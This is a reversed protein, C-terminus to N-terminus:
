ITRLRVIEAQQRRGRMQALIRNFSANLSRIRRQSGGEVIEGIPMYGLRQYTRRAPINKDAVSLVVDECHELLTRTVASTTTTAYGRGRFNPHTYVNGVVAIGYTPSIAHTGAVSVLRDNVVIGCYLGEDIHRASYTTIGWETGYLQNIAGVHKGDLRVSIEETDHFRQSTVHMRRMVRVSEMSYTSQLANLHKPLGTIFTQSVGPHISLAAQVGPPAGFVFTSDGLGAPSHMIISMKGDNESIWWQSLSFAEPELQAFASAAILRNPQLLQALLEADIARRVTFARTM